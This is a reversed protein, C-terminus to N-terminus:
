TYMENLKSLSVGWGIFDDGQDIYLVNRDGGFIRM